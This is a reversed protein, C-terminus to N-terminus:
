FIAFSRALVRLPKFALFIPSLIWIAGRCQLIPLNSLGKSPCFLKGGIDQKCKASFQRKANTSSFM